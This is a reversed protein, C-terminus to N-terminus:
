KNLMPENTKQRPYGRCALSMVCEAGTGEETEFFFSAEDETDGIFSWDLFVDVIALWFSLLLLEQAVVEVDLELFCSVDPGVARGVEGELM